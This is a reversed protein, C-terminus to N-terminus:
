VRTGLARARRSDRKPLILRLLGFFMLGVGTVMVACGMCSATQSLLLGPAEGCWGQIPQLCTRTSAGTLALALGSLIVAAPRV